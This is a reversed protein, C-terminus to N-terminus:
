GMGEISEQTIYARAGQDLACKALELGLQLPDKGSASLKIKQNGDPAAIVGQLTIEGERVEALAGVPLSCGGGLATLFAREASVALRTYRDEIGKLLQQTHEDDIRCQVALAGQGPAPLMIDLPIYQTIYKQLGLRTVGAAALVIADYKGELVKRIRTDINGRIAKVQLDPRHALIQAKRRNSSTGVLAGAPLDGLTQEVPCILVDRIDARQPIAGIQLGPVDETPLDKLSHVAADVRGDHLAQELEHTFLGKGGIEPLSKNLERDGRTTIVLEKCNLNRWHNNLEQIVYSTQWRALASPRTAFILASSM